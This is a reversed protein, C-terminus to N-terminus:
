WLMCKLLIVGQAAMVGRGRCPVANRPAHLIRYLWQGGGRAEIYPTESGSRQM